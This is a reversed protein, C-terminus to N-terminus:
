FEFYKKKKKKKKSLYWVSRFEAGMYQEVMQCAETTKSQKYKGWAAHVHGAMKELVQHQWNEMLRAIINPTGGGVRGTFIFGEAGCSACLMEVVVVGTSHCLLTVEHMGSINRETAERTMVGVAARMNAGNVVSMVSMGQVERHEFGTTLSSGTSWYTITLDARCVIVISMHFPHVPVHSMRGDILVSVEMQDSHVPSSSSGSGEETPQQQYTKKMIENMIETLCPGLAEPRFRQDAARLLAARAFTAYIYGALLPLSTALTTVTALHGKCCGNFSVLYGAVAM